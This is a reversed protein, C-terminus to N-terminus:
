KNNLLGGPRLENKIVSRILPIISDSSDEKNVWVKIKNHSTILADSIMAKEIFVQGQLIEFADTSRILEDLQELKKDLESTDLSLKVTMEKIPKRDLPGVSVSVDEVNGTCVYDVTLPQTIETEEILIPCLIRSLSKGNFDGEVLVQDGHKIRYSLKAGHYDGDKLSYLRNFSLFIRNTM